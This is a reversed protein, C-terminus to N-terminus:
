EVMDERIIDGNPYILIIRRKLRRAYRVTAWTGSRLEEFSLRPLAILVECDDVIDHNRGLYPKPKSVKVAGRQLFARYRDEDPPHVHILYRRQRMLMDARADGGVCDGHHGVVGGAVWEEDLVRGLAAEQAATLGKRTATIGVHKV